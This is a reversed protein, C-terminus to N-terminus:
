NCPDLYMRSCLTLLPGQADSPTAWHVVVIIVVVFIKNMIVIKTEFHYVILSRFCFGYLAEFLFGYCPVPVVPSALSSCASELILGLHLGSKLTFIFRLELPSEPLSNKCNSASAPTSHCDSM